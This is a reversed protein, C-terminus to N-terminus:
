EAVGLASGYTEAKTKSSVGFVIIASAKNRPIIQLFSENTALLLVVALFGSLCLWFSFGLGNKKIFAERNDTLKLLRRVRWTIDVTQVELLFAGVPMAPNTGHPVIRAVKVLASALSLATSNGTQAAFEDAAAESNEAWARDLNRGCSILLLDRCVRLVTRKFNDHTSLHGYEHAIAARFEEASLSDFIQRAVFMKPRFTGIVAIIPFPHRVRYVPISVNEVSIKDSLRLWNAVLRRTVWWSGFVRYLAISVGVASLLTFLALKFSVIEESSHPEFLLYAPLLFAAVFIFAFITPLIRLAFIVQVRRGATWQEASPSFVRWFTAATASALLNLVFFIAFFLSIGLLSYM